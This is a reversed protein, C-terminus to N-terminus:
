EHVTVTGKIEGLRARIVSGAILGLLSSLFIASVMAWIGATAEIKVFRSGETLFLLLALGFVDLMAWKGVGDLLAEHKRFDEPLVRRYWLISLGVLRLAPTVVLFILVVAAFLYKGDSFLAGFTGLISYANKTLFWETIKIYPLGVATVLAVASLLILLPVVIMRFGSKEAPRVPEPKVIPPAPESRLQLSLMTESCVMSLCIALLFLPLGVHTKTIFLQGQDHSLVILVLAVFVDLLSWRGLSTLVRLYRERTRSRWPTYWLMFLSALKLFPFTISFGAILIAIWYLKYTWMLTVTHPISYSEPQKGLTQIMMFPVTLAVVNLTLSVVLLGPMLMALGSFRFALVDRDAKGAQDVMIMLM